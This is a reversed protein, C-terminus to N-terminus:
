HMFPYLTKVKSKLPLGGLEIVTQECLKDSVGSSLVHGPPSQSLKVNLLRKLESMSLVYRSFLKDQIFDTLEKKHLKSDVETVLAEDSIEMTEGNLLKHGNKLPDKSTVDTDLDMELDSHDSISRGSLTRKRTRSTRRRRPREAQAEAAAVESILKM